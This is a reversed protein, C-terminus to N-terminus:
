PKSSHAFEMMMLHGSTKGKMLFEKMEERGTDLQKPIEEAKLESLRFRVLIRRYELREANISTQDGLTRIEVM